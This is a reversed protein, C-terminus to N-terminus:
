PFFFFAPRARTENEPKELSNSEQMNIPNTKGFSPFVLEGDKGCV